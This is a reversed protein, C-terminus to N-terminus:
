HNTGLMQSLERGGDMLKNSGYAKEVEYLPLIIGFKM